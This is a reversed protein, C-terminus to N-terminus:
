APAPQPTPSPPVVVKAVAHAGWGSGLVVVRPRAIPHSPLDTARPTDGSAIPQTQDSKQEVWLKLLRRLRLENFQGQEAFALDIEPVSGVDSTSEDALRTLHLEIDRKTDSLKQIWVDLPSQSDKILEALRVRAAKPTKTVCPLRPFYKSQVFLSDKPLAVTAPEVKDEVLCTVSTHRM